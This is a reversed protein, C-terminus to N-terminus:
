QYKLYYVYPSFFRSKHTSLKLDSLCILHIAVDYKYQLLDTTSFDQTFTKLPPGFFQGPFYSYPSNVVCEYCSYIQKYPSSVTVYAFHKWNASVMLKIQHIFSFSSSTSSFFFDIFLTKVFTHKGALWQAAFIKLNTSLKQHGEKPKTRM